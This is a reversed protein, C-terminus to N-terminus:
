SKPTQNEILTFEFNAFNNKSNHHFTLLHLGPERFNITGIEAKNWIHYSGTNLPLKCISAAQGNIDFNITSDNNSYLATINYTGPLKVNVTYNLWEDDETWGIYLQNIDPVYYNDAHNFDAFDKTYSVDVAEKNRFAWERPTAHPRQHRPSLNLGGSGRNESEFDHYAVGEGGLDFYACEVKGPIVQPGRAQGENVFPKGRYDSPVSSQIPNLDKVRMNRFRVVQNSFEVEKPIQFGIRGKRSGEVNEDLIKHRNLYVTIHDAKCNIAIQNWKDPRHKNVGSSASHHLLSGTLKRKPLDSIQVEYGHMDPGGISDKPMRLAIGSNCNAPVMFELELAFDDWEDDSFLWSDSIQSPDQRGVFAEDEIEWIGKGQITWSGLNHRNYVPTFATFENFPYNENPPQINTESKLSNDTLGESQIQKCSMHFMMLLALQLFFSTKLNQM